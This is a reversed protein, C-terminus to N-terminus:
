TYGAIYGYCGPLNELLIDNFFIMPIYHLFYCRQKTLSNRECNKVVYNKNHITVDYSKFRYVEKAVCILILCSESSIIVYIYESFFVSQSM